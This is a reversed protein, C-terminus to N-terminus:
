VVIVVLLVIFQYPVIILVGIHNGAFDAFFFHDLNCLRYFLLGNKCIWLSGQILPLSGRPVLSIDRFLLPLGGGYTVTLLAIQLIIAERTYLSPSRM